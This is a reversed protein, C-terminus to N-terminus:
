NMNVGVGNIKAKDRYLAAVAIDYIAMGMPNFMVTSNEPRNVIANRTVVDVFTLADKEELGCQQHMLEIDTEKRCVEMWSDVVMYDVFHRFAPAFDRLSVNLILAGVRPREVIYGRASTTCTVVVDTSQLLSTASSHYDIECSFRSARQRAAREDIDYIGVRSIRDGFLQTFMALHHVGIEGFGIIGLSFAERHRARLFQKAMVGSVGATRTASLLTSNIFCEPEGSQVNNLITIAHARSKGRACNGPFSAIWKLGVAGGDGGLYAPMAIIRNRPSRLHLYPKLPQEYDGGAVLWTAREVADVVKHWDTGLTRIDDTNLYLM